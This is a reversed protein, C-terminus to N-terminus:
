QSVVLPLGTPMRSLDVSERDRALPLLTEISCSAPSVGHTGRCAAILFLKQQL